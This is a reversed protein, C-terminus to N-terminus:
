NLDSPTGILEKEGESNKDIRRPNLILIKTLKLESNKWFFTL